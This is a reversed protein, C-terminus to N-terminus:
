KQRVRKKKSARAEHREPDFPGVDGSEHVRRAAERVALSLVSSIPELLAKTAPDIMIQVRELDTAGDGAKVGAGPARTKKEEVAM